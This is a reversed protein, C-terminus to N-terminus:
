GWLAEKLQKSGGTSAKPPTTVVYSWTEEGDVFLRFKLISQESATPTSLEIAGFKSNGDPVYKIMVDEDDEQRYTRFPLYFQSLPSTCFEHVAASVPWKSDSPPPFSTAAFEHRDGSVIAVGVGSRSGVDWMAELIQRREALYGGWTDETGIHWNKTFPVSSAVIKWKVGAPLPQRLWRLLDARQTAGLMTKNTDNASGAFESSRYRRTDLLFFSAPGQTFSFYSEGRRVEPPNVSTHYLKWPETAAEYVGTTNQDWDNAIEHDDLVHIWPLEASVSPWDPSKYVMRYERRYTEVDSGFRKPVDVYIFDGLFLMFQAKLSPILRALHRLGPIGLPHSLPNYPFHSKLCSSALFTFTGDNHTPTEGAPPATRFSGSHNNSTAYQYRTQPKLSSITLTSSFDTANTLTMIQGGAKWADDVADEAQRYSLFLPLQTADPERLLIRAERNSVFGTRAFSLDHAPHWLPARYVADIVGIVLLVNIAATTVSLLTSTPSPLGSLLTWVVHADQEELVLTEEVDVEEVIKVEAESGRLNHSHAATSAFTPPQADEPEDEKVEETVTIDVEDAIVKYPSITFFSLLFSPLYIALFTYVAPPAHHGPIWRFFVYAGIRIGLSSLVIALTNISSM